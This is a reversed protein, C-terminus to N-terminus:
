LFLHLTPARSLGPELFRPSPSRERSCSILLENASIHSSDCFYGGSSKVRRRGGIVIDEEAPGLSPRHSPWPGFGTRTVVPCLASTHSIACLNDGTYTAPRGPSSPFQNKNKKQPNCHQWNRPPLTSSWIKKQFPGTTSYNQSIRTMLLSCINRCTLSAM